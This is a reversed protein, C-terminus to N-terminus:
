ANEMKHLVSILKSKASNIEGQVGADDIISKLTESNQADELRAIVNAFREIAKERRTMNLGEDILEATQSVVM